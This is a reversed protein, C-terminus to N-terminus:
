RGTTENYTDFERHIESILRVMCDPCMWSTGFVERWGAARMAIVVSGHEKASKRPTWATRCPGACLVTGGNMTGALTTVPQMSPYSIRTYSSETPPIVRYEDDQDFM